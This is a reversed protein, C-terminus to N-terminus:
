AEAGARPEDVGPPPSPAAHLLAEEEDSGSKKDEAGAGYAWGQVLITGDLAVTGLSGLLWPLSSLLEQAGRSRLLLAGGYLLNASIACTFMLPALGEVSRRVHNKWIQSARSSLYFM